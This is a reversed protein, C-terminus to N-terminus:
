APKTVRVPAPHTFSAHFHQGLSAGHENVRDADIDFPGEGHRDQLVETILLDIRREAAKESDAPHEVILRGYRYLQVSFM